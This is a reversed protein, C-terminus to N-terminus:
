GCIEHDNVSPTWRLHMVNWKMENSENQKGVDSKANSINRTFVTWFQWTNTYIRLCGGFCFVYIFSFFLKTKNKMDRRENLFIFKLKKPLINATAYYDARTANRRYKMHQNLKNMIRRYIIFQMSASQRHLVIYEGYLKQMECLFWLNIQREAIFDFIQSHFTHCPQHLKDQNGCIHNHGRLDCYIFYM